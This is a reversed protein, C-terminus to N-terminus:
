LNEHAERAMLVDDPARVFPACDREKTMGRFEWDPHHKCGSYGNRAMAANRNIVNTCQLCNM